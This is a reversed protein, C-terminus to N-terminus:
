EAGDPQRPPQARVYAYQPWPMYGKAQRAAKRAQRQRAAEIRALDAETTPTKPEPAPQPRRRRGDGPRPEDAIPDGAMGAAMIMGLASAAAIGRM